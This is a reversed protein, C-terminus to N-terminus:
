AEREHAAEARALLVGEGVAHQRAPAVLEATATFSFYGTGVPDFHRDAHGSRFCGGSAGGHSRRTRRRAVERALEHGREVVEGHASTRSRRRPRSRATRTPRALLERGLHARPHVLERAVLEVRVHSHSQAAARDRGAIEGVRSTRAASPAVSAPEVRLEPGLAVPEEVERHRRVLEPRDQAVQAVGAQDHRRFESSRRRTITSFGNPRLGLRRLLLCARRRPARRIASTGCRDSGRCSVTCFMM